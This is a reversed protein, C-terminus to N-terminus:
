SAPEVADGIEAVVVVKAVGVPENCRKLGNGEDDHGVDIIKQVRQRKETRREARRRPEANRHARREMMSFDTHLCWIPTQGVRDFRAQEAQGHAGLTHTCQQRDVRCQGFPACLRESLTGCGHTIQGVRKGVRTGVLGCRGARAEAQRRAAVQEDIPGDGVAFAYALEDGCERLHVVRRRKDDGALLVAVRAFEQVRM